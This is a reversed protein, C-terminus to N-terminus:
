LGLGARTAKVLAWDSTDGSIDWMGTGALGQDRAFEAKIKLSTPDDYTVVTSSAQNYAYPTSSCEDWKRTFGNKGYWVGTTSLSLVKYSVLQNFQIQTNKFSSIDGDAARSVLDRKIESNAEEIRPRPNSNRMESRAEAAIRRAHMAEMHQARKHILTTATSDSVYGYAPLGLMIKNAPMGASKWAKIAAVANAGPQWSGECTSYPANPGPNASSGWVDYNMILVHDVYKAYASVDVLPSGNAGIWVNTPTALSIIKDNGFKTRLLALFTLLNASDTSSIINGPAGSQNPYEWDIDVGDAGYENVMAAINSAFVERNQSNKVADSFYQSGTWGGITICVKSGGAHGAKVTRRLLDASNWQTWYLTMDAAPIAFATLFAISTLQQVLCINTGLLSVSISSTSCRTTLLRPLFPDVPGTQTTFQM